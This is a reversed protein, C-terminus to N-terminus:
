NFGGAPAGSDGPRQTGRGLEPGNFPMKGHPGQAPQFVPVEDSFRAQGLTGNTYQKSEQERTLDSPDGQTTKSHGWHVMDKPKVNFVSRAGPGTGDEVSPGKKVLFRDSKDDKWDFLRRQPHQAASRLQGLEPVIKPTDQLIGLRNVGDLAVSLETIYDSAGTTHEVEAPRQSAGVQPGSAEADVDVRPRAQGPTNVRAQESGPTGAPPCEVFAALRDGFLSLSSICNALDIEEGTTAHDIEGNPFYREIRKILRDLSNLMRVAMELQSASMRIVALPKYQSGFCTLEGSEFETLFLKAESLLGVIAQQKARRTQTGQVENNYTMAPTVPEQEKLLISLFEKTVAQIDKVVYLKRTKLETTKFEPPLAKWCAEGAKELELLREYAARSVFSSQGSNLQDLLLAAANKMEEWTDNIIRLNLRIPDEDGGLREEEFEPEVAAMAMLNVVTKALLIPSSLEVTVQSAGASILLVGM